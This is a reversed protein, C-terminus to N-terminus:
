VPWERNFSLLRIAGTPVSVATNGVVVTERNEYLHGIILLMAAIELAGPKVTEVDPDDSVFIRNQYKEAYERAARIYFTILGNEDDTVVRLHEKARKLSIPEAMVSM